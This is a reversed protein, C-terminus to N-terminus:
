SSVAALLVHFVFNYFFSIGISFLLFYSFLDEVVVAVTLPRDRRWLAIATAILGLILFTLTFNGLV